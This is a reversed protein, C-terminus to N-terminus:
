TTMIMIIAWPPPRSVATEEVRKNHSVSVLAPRWRRFSRLIFVVNIIYNKYEKTM